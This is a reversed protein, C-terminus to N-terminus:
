KKKGFPTAAAGSTAMRKAYDSKPASDKAKPQKQKKSERGSKSDGRSMIPEPTQSSRSCRKKLWDFMEMVSERRERPATGSTLSSITNKFIKALTPEKLGCEGSSCTLQLDDRMSESM